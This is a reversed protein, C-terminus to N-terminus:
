SPSERGVAMRVIPLLVDASVPKDLYQLAGCRLARRREQDKPYATVFVIPLKYGAANMQDQLELGDMGPMQVDLILCGTTEPSVTDLFAKGSVFTEVDFGSSRLLRGLASFVSPDDDVIFVRPNTM